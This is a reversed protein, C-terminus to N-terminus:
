QLKRNRVEDLKDRLYKNDTELHNKIKLVKEFQAVLSKLNEECYRGNTQEINFIKFLKKLSESNSLANSYSERTSPELKHLKQEYEKQILEVDQNKSNIIEILEAKQELLNM